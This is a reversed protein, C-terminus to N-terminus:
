FGQRQSVRLEVSHQQVFHELVDGVLARRQALDAANESGATM